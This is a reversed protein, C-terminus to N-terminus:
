ALDGLASRFAQTARFLHRKVSGVAIGLADAVEPSSFGEVHRLVFVEQQRLSLTAFVAAIRRRRQADLAAADPARLSSILTEATFPEAAARWWQWWKGRRRKHCAHAAVTTLWARWKMERIPGRWEQLAAVFVEQAVDEAEVADRLLLQCIRLVRPYQEQYLAHYGDTARVTALVPARDNSSEHAPADTLVTAGTRM